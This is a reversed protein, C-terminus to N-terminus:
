LWKGRMGWAARHKRCLLYALQPLFSTVKDVPLAPTHGAYSTVEPVYSKCSILKPPSGIRAEILTNAAAARNTAALLPESAAFRSDGFSIWASNKL